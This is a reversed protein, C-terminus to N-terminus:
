KHGKELKQPNTTPPFKHKDVNQLGCWSCSFIFDKGNFGNIFLGYHTIHTCKKM